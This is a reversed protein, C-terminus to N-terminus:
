TLQLYMNDLIVVGDQEVLCGQLVNINFTGDFLNVDYLHGLLQNNNKNGLITVTKSYSGTRKSVDRIESIGFNLPFATGDKVDLYGNVPDTLLIRVKSM